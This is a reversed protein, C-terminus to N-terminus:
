RVTFRTSPVPKTYEVYLDEHEAKFAKSDFRNCFYRTYKVEREGIKLESVGQTDMESKVADELATIQDDLEARQAKLACILDLRFALEQSVM